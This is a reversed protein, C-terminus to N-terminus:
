QFRSSHRGRTSAQISRRRLRGPKKRQSTREPTLLYGYISSRPEHKVAAPYDCNQVSVRIFGHVKAPNILRSVNSTNSADGTLAWALLPTACQTGYIFLPRPKSAAMIDIYKRSSNLLQHPPLSHVTTDAEVTCYSRLVPPPQCTQFVRIPRRPM